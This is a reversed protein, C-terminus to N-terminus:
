ELINIFISVVAALFFAVYIGWFYVLFGVAALLLIRGMHLAIERVVTYEDVYHGNDAANEYMLADFPIRRFIATFNHYTSVAFIQWATQVFIKIIWGIAYFGSSYKLMKKKDFKDAYKGAIVDFLVTIAIILTSLAGVALYQGELVVFIFVPWIFFGVGSEAGDALYAWFMKRNKKSLLEKFVQFYSYTYAQKIKKIKFVPFVALIIIVISVAFLVSYDYYTLIIGAILPILISSIDKILFLISYQSGRNGTKSFNIFENHFPLWYFLRFLVLFFLAFFIININQLEELLYFSLLYFAVAIIGVALSKRLNAIITKALFPLFIIHFFSSLLYFIIVAQYSNNFSEYIFIPVFLGVLGAGILYIMRASFFYVLSDSYNYKRWFKNLM